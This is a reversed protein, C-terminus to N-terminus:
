RKARQRPRVPYPIPAQKLGRRQVFIKRQEIVRANRDLAYGKLWVWGDYTTRDYVQTVRFILYRLGVFQVSAEDDILLVDGPEPLPPLPRTLGGRVIV